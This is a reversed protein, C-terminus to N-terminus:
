GGQLISYIKDIDPVSFTIGSITISVAKEMASRAASYLEDARITGNDSEIDAMKVLPHELIAGVTKEPHDHLRAILFYAAFRTAGSAKMAIEKEAYIMLANHLQERTVIM